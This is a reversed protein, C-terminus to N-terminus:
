YTPPARKTRFSIRHMLISRLHFRPRTNTENFFAIVRTASYLAIAQQASMAGDPMEIHLTIMRYLSFWFFFCKAQSLVQMSFPM